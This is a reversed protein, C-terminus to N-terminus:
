GSTTTVAAAGQPPPAQVGHSTVWLFFPARGKPVPQDWFFVGFVLRLYRSARPPQPSAFTGNWSQGPKLQTPMLPTIRKAYILYNGADELRPSLSSIFVGLGFDVPSRQGGTPMIITRKSINRFGVRAKWGDPGVELRKVQVVMAGPAAELWNMKWVKHKPLNELRIGYYTEHQNASGGGCAVLASAVIALLVLRIVRLRV